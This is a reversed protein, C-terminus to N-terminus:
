IQCTPVELVLGISHGEIRDDTVPGVLNGVVRGCLGVLRARPCIDVIALLIVYSSMMLISVVYTTM